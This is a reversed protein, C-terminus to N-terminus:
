GIKAKSFDMEPHQAKFKDLLDLKKQEDSSPKGLEKQHQDYMMKEVMTRTQGDLESLKSNEPQIKTTDIKARGGRRPGVVRGPEGQGPPHQDGQRRGGGDGADVGVRGRPHRAGARGAHRGRAHAQTHGHGRLSTPWVDIIPEQGKVGVRLATKGLRVDLDRGKLTGAVPVTIDLDKITQTWQYPLAAQEAAETAKREADAKDRESPTPSSSM